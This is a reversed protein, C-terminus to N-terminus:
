IYMFYFGGLPDDCHADFGASILIVEPDFHAIAPLVVDRLASRFGAPGAMLGSRADNGHASAKASRDVSDIAHPLVDCCVLNRHEWQSTARPREPSVDRTEVTFPFLGALQVSTYMADPDDRLLEATGNGFHADIDLVAVRRLGWSVRAHAVAVCVNNILCFGQSGCEVSVGDVGTRGSRGCHHGPPRVVCFANRAAGTCVADIARCVVSAAAVAARTSDPSVFTDSQEAGKVSRLSRVDGKDTVAAKPTGRTFHSARTASRRSSRPAAEEPEAGEDSDNENEDVDDEAEETAAKAKVVRVRLPASRPPASAAGRARKASHPLGAAALAEAVQREQRDEEVRARKRTRARRDLSPSTSRAVPPPSPARKKEREARAAEEDDLPPM